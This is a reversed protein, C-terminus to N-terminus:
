YKNGRKVPPPEPLSNIESSLMSTGLADGNGNEYAIIRRRCNRDTKAYTRDFHYAESCWDLSPLKQKERETNTKAFSTQFEQRAEKTKSAHYAGGAVLAAVCSSMFFLPLLLVIITKKM